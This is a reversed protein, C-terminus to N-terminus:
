TFMPWFCSKKNVLPLLVYEYCVDSGMDPGLILNPEVMRQWCLPLGEVSCNFSKIGITLVWVARSASFVDTSLVLNEPSVM